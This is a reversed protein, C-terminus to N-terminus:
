FWTSTDFLDFAPSADVGAVADGTDLPAIADFMGFRSSLDTDGNPTM